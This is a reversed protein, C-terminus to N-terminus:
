DGAQELPFVTLRIKTTTWSRNTQLPGVERYLHFHGGDATLDLGQLDMGEFLLRCGTNATTNM